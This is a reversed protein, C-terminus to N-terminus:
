TNTECLFSTLAPNNLAAYSKWTYPNPHVNVRYRLFRFRLIVTLWLFHMINSLTTHTNTNVSFCLICEPALDEPNVQQSSVQWVHCAAGDTQVPQAGLSLPSLHHCIHPVASSGHWWSLSVCVCVCAYVCVRMCVFLYVCVCVCVLLSEHM